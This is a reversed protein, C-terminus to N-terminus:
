AIQLGWFAHNQIDEKVAEQSFRGNWFGVSRVSDYQGVMLGAAMYFDLSEQSTNEDVKSGLGNELLRLMIERTPEIEPGSIGPRWGYGGIFKRAGVLGEGLPIGEYIAGSENVDTEGLGRGRFYEFATDVIKNAVKKLSPNEIPLHKKGKLSEKLKNILSMKKKNM